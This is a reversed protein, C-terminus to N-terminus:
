GHISDRLVDSGEEIATLPTTRLPVRYIDVILSVRDLLADQTKHWVDERFFIVDGPHLAPSCKFHEQQWHRASLRCNQRYRLDTHVAELNTVAADANDLRATSGNKSVMVFAKHFRGDDGAGDQHWHHLGTVLDSRNLRLALWGTMQLIPGPAHARHSWPDGPDDWESFKFMRLFVLRQPVKTCSPRMVARLLEIRDLRQVSSWWCQLMGNAKSDDWERPNTESENNLTQALCTERVSDPRQAAIAFLTRYICTATQVRKWRNISIFEGGTPTLPWGLSAEDHLGSAIFGELMDHLARSFRPVVDKWDGHSEGLKHLFCARPQYGSAGCMSRTLEPIREVHAAMVDLEERGVMGRRIFWGRDKLKTHDELDSCRNTHDPIPSQECRRPDFKAFDFLSLKSWKVFRSAEAGAGLSECVNPCFRRMTRLQGHPSCFGRKALTQCHEAHTTAEARRLDHLPFPSESKLHRATM